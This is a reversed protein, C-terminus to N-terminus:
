PLTLSWVDGEVSTETFAIWRDDGTATFQARYSSWRQDWRLDSVRPPAALLLRRDGSRTDLSYLTGAVSYLLRRSDALWWGDRESAELLREFRRTKWTYAFVGHRSGDPHAATGLLRAGDRSWSFPMFKLDGGLPPLIELPDRVPLPGTLDILAVDHRDNESPGSSWNRGAVVMRTGDPSWIGHYTSADATIQQLSSGDPRITWVEWDGSRNSYFSIRGGDPAWQGGRDRHADRTLPLLAGGEVGAVFLDEHPGWGGFVVRRGDPSIQPDRFDRSRQLVPQPVGVLHGRGPDFAVRQFTARRELTTFLLQRGDASISLDWIATPSTTVPEPAGLRRGSSEDVAIRWANMTGGRDSLFYLHGGDPSWAPSWDLAPDATLMVPTNGRTNGDVAVTALDRRGPVRDITWFAIRRGHPSWAPQVADGEYLLRKDGTAADIVWLQAKTKLRAVPDLTADTSVVISRGDPSWSPSYGFDTLQRAPGGGIDVLFLGGGDRESRFAVRTGDPSIAPTWENAPSDATLMSPNQGGVRQLVIDSGKPGNSVYVLSRGDATIRAGSEVGADDTLQALVPAGAGGGDGSRAIWQVAGVAAVVLMVAAGAPVMGRPPWRVPLGREAKSSETIGALQFALDHVSQFREQPQKELCHNMVRLLAPPLPRSPPAPDERLIATMTEATTERRFARQGALMEYLIAGFAFIDSRADAPQGRVQEPAMYGPTGMLVGPDTRFSHTPSTSDDELPLFPGVRALGFDLIKVRGDRTIFVNEPKLDRHVIGKDHAAALGQAIQLAYEVAKRTPLPGQVLRERLSEGELLEMVAYAIGDSEGYDHLSLVNPHSLTAVARAEREFRAIAVPDRRSSEPLLKLAVQRDLREDRARYVEGMGGAGLPALIEYPGVKTRPTRPM